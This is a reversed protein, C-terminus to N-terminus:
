RDLFCIMVCLSTFFFFFFVSKFISWVNKTGTEGIITNLILSGGYILGLEHGGGDKAKDKDKAGGSDKAPNRQCKQPGAAMKSWLEHLGEPM